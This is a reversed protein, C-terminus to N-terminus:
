ASASRTPLGNKIRGEVQGEGATPVILGTLLKSTTSKGAGNPGVYAVSEGTGICFDVQDVALRSEFRPRILHKLSGTLGLEKTPRQFSKTLQKAEIVPM